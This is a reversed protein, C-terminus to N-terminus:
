AEGPGFFAPCTVSAADTSEVIDDPKQAPQDKKEVNPNEWDV